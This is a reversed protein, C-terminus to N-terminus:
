NSFASGDADYLERLTDLLKRAETSDALGAVEALRRAPLPEDALLLVAELRALKPERGLPHLTPSETAEARFRFAAPQTANGPRVSAPRLTATGYRQRHQFM